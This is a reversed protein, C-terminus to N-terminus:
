LILFWSNSIIGVKLTTEFSLVAAPSAKIPPNIKPYAFPSFKFVQIFKPFAFPESEVVIKPACFDNGSLLM